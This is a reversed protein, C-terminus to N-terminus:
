LYIMNYLMGNRIKYVIHAKRRGNLLQKIQLVNGLLPSSFIEEGKIPFLRASKMNPTAKYRYEDFKKGIVYPITEDKISIYSLRDFIM